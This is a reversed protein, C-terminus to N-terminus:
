SRRNFDQFSIRAQGGPRPNNPRSTPMQFQHQQHQNSFFNASPSFQSTSGLNGNPGSPAQGAALWQVENKLAENLADKLHAQQEMAQLKLKLEKNESTLGNTNRQLQSLFSKWIKAKNM